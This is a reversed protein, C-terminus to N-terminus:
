LIVVSTFFKQIAPASLEDHAAVTASITYFGDSADIFMYLSPSPGAKGSVEYALYSAGKPDRGEVKREDITVGKFRSKIGELNAQAYNKLSAFDHNTADRQQFLILIVKKSTQLTSGSPVLVACAGIQSASAKDNIWGDPLAFAVQHTGAQCRDIGADGVTTNGQQGGAEVCPPAVSTPFWLLAVFFALKKM